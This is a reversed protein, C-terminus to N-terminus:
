VAKVWDYDLSEHPHQYRHCKMAKKLNDIIFDYNPEDEFKLSYIYLM